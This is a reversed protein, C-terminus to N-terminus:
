DLQALLNCDRVLTMPRACEPPISGLPGLATPPNLPAGSFLAFSIRVPGSTAPRASSRVRGTGRRLDAPKATEIESIVKQLM